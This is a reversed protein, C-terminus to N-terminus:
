CEKARSRRAPGRLLFCAHKGTARARGICTSAKAGSTLPSHRGDARREGQVPHSFHHPGWFLRPRTLHALMYRNSARARFVAFCLERWGKCGGLTGARGYPECQTTVDAAGGPARSSSRGSRRRGSRSRERQAPHREVLPLHGPGAEAPAGTLDEHLRSLAAFIAAFSPRDLPDEAWCAAMVDRWPCEAPLPPRLGENAVRSIIQAASLNHYVEERTALEWLVIGFAYVDITETGTNDKILEPALWCTTGVGHTMSRAFGEPTAAVARASRRPFRGATRAALVLSEDRDAGAGAPLRLSAVARAVKM